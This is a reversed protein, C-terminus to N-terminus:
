EPESDHTSSVQKSLITVLFTCATRNGLPLDVIVGAFVYISGRNRIPM